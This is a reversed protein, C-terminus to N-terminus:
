VSREETSTGFIQRGCHVLCRFCGAYQFFCSHVLSSCVIPFAQPCGHRFTNVIANCRQLLQKTSFIKIQDVLYLNLVHCACPVWVMGAFLDYNAALERATAPMVKATDSTMMAVKGKPIDPHRPGLEPNCGIAALVTNNIAAAKQAANEVGEIIDYCGLFASSGDATVACFHRSFLTWGDEQISFHPSEQQLMSQVRSAALKALQKVQMM